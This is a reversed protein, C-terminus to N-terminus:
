PKRAVLLAHLAFARAFTGLRDPWGVRIPSRRPFPVYHGTGAAREIRLGTDRVWRRVRPLFLAHAIPQGGESFTRGTLPLYLRYLGMLNMYSPFTLYLRGGPRLVRALEGLARRPDPVHEITECSIAADFSGDDWDLRMLDVVRYRVGVVGRARGLAEAMRVAEPSADGAVLEAPRQEAPLGGLWAAFGGRGCGVELVRRAGLGTILPKLMLHWPADSGDDPAHAAHWADYAARM